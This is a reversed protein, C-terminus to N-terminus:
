KLSVLFSAARIKLQQIDVNGWMETAWFFIVFWCASQDMERVEIICGSHQFKWNRTM